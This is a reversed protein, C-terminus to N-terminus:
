LSELTDQCWYFLLEFSERFDYDVGGNFDMARALVSRDNGELRNLLERKTGFFEGTRLYHLNQLIFFVGKYTFPLCSVNAEADGHIFRHCIEHYLNNISMKVFNRIDQASYAPVLERVVGFYDKTSHILHCIEL